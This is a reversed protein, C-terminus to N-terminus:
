RVPNQQAKYHQKCFELVWLADAVDDSLTEIGLIMKAAGIMQYKKARGNGTAFKKLTAPNVPLLSVGLQEATLEIVGALRNHLAQTAAHHSGFTADEFAIVDYGWDTKAALLYQRMRQLRKGPHDDTRSTLHWVGYEGCSHAYGCTAAPDLALIRVGGANSATM